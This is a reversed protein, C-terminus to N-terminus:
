QGAEESRLWAKEAQAMAAKSLVIKHAVVLDRASFPQGTGERNPATRVTVNPLNRFSKLANTDYSELVVLVRKVDAVGAATLLALADKTKPTEFSIEDVLIVSGAEAKATFAGIIALRREKKNLGKTYDRPKIALAMAGHAWQPSRTSGQRANGTKKQKYPKRGGGRAESRTKASHTGQRKNSEETVVARHILHSPVQAESLAAPIQHTGASKGGKGIINLEAM